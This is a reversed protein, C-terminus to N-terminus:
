LARGAACCQLVAGIFCVEEQTHTHTHTHTHIELHHRRLIQFLATVTAWAAKGGGRDALPLAEAGAAREFTGPVLILGSISSM